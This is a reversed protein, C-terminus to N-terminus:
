WRWRAAVGPRLLFGGLGGAHARAEPVIAFHGSVDIAAEAALAATLGNTVTTYEDTLISITPAQLGPFTSSFTGGITTNTFMRETRMFSVGGRFGAQIRGRAPPHYGVLVSSASSRHSTRSQYQLASSPITLGLPVRISLTRTESVTKGVDLGLELSWAPTFFAGIRGGGGITVGDRPSTDLGSALTDPSTTRSSRMIEAFLDGAVYIRTQARASQVCGFLALCVSLVGRM